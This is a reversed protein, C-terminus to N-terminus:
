PEFGSSCAPLYKPVWCSVYPQVQSLDLNHHGECKQGVWLVSCLISSDLSLVGGSIAPYFVSLLWLWLFHQSASSLLALFFLSFVLLSLWVLAKPHNQFAPQFPMFLKALLWASVCVCPICLCVWIFCLKISLLAVQLTKFIKSLGKKQCACLLRYLLESSIASMPGTAWLIQTSKDM